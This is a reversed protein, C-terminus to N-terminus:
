EELEKRARTDERERESREIGRALTREEREKEREGKECARRGEKERSSETVEAGCHM